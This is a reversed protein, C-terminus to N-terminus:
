ARFNEHEVLRLNQLGRYRVAGMDIRFYVLHGSCSVKTMVGETGHLSDQRNDVAVRDNVQFQAWHERQGGQSTREQERVCDEEERDLAALRIRLRM